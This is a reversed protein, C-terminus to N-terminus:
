PLASTEKTSIFGGGAYEQSRWQPTGPSLRAPYRTGSATKPPHKCGSPLCGHSLWQAALLGRSM